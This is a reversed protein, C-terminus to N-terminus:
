RTLAGHDIPIQSGTIHRAEDSALFAMLAAMDDVSSSEPHFTNTFIAGLDPFREVYERFGGGTVNNMPSDVGAPHVSLVRINYEAVESSLTKVLGVVAHKSAVYHCLFPMGRLGAISSTAIIVGGTGQEIMAPVVAKFTHWTGFLNVDMVERFDRESLEWLRGYSV